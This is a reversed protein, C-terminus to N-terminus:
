VPLTQQQFHMGRLSHEAFLGPVRQQHRDVQMMGIHHGLDNVEEPVAVVPVIVWDALHGDKTNRADLFDPIGPM